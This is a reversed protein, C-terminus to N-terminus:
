AGEGKVISRVLKIGAASLAEAIAAQTAPDELGKQVWKMPKVGKVSRAFVETGDKLFFHLFQAKVPVIPRGQPGYIGTGRNILAGYFNAWVGAIEPGGSRWVLSKQLAGKDVPAFDALRRPLFRSVAEQVIEPKVKAARGAMEDLARTEFTISVPM